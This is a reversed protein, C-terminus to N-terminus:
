KRVFYYDHYDPHGDIDRERLLVCLGVESLMDAFEEPAFSTMYIVNRAYDRDKQRVKPSGDDYRVQLLAYGDLKLIKEMIGLVRRTYRKSPFHQFVGVSIILDVSASAVDQLVNEPNPAAFPIHVFNKHGLKTMRRECEILSARSIDIGYVTFFSECLPRAIAGGGCGWELATKQALENMYNRPAFRELFQLTLDFYADGYKLWRDEMWRQAGCWHSQDQIRSDRSSMNWYLGAAEELTGGNKLADIFRWMIGKIRSFM